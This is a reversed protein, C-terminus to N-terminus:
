ISISHLFTRKSCYSSLNPDIPEDTLKIPEHSPIPTEAILKDKANIKKHKKKENTSIFLEIDTVPETLM